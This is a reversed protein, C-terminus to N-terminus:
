LNPICTAANKGDVPVLTVFPPVGSSGPIDPLDPKMGPSFVVQLWASNDICVTSYQATPKEEPFPPVGPCLRLLSFKTIIITVSTSIYSPKSLTFLM